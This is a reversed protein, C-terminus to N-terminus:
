TGSEELYLIAQLLEKRAAPYVNSALLRAIVVPDGKAPDMTLKGWASQVMMTFEAEVADRKRAHLRGNSDKYATVEMIGGFTNM